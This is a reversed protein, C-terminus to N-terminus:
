YVERSSRRTAPKVHTHTHTHTHTHPVCCSSEDARLVVSFRYTPRAGLFLLLIYFLAAWHIWHERQELEYYYRLFFFLCSSGILYVDVTKVTLLVSCFGVGAHRSPRGVSTSVFAPMGM